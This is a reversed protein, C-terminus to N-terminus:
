LYGGIIIKVKAYLLTLIASTASQPFLTESLV